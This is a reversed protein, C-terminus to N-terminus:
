PERKEAKKYMSTTKMLMLSLSNCDEESPVLGEDGEEEGRVAAADALRSVLEIV